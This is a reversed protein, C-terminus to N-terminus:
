KQDRINATYLVGMMFLVLSHAEMAGTKTKQNLLQM